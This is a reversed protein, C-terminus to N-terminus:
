LVHKRYNARINASRLAVPIPLDVTSGLLKARQRDFYGQTHGDALASRFTNLERKAVPAVHPIRLLSM